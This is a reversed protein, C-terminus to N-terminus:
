ICATSDRLIMESSLQDDTERQSGVARRQLFGKKRNEEQKRTVLQVEPSTELVMSPAKSLRSAAPKRCIQCCKLTSPLFLKNLTGRTYVRYKSYFRIVHVYLVHLQHHLTNITPGIYAPNNNNNNNTCSLHFKVFM